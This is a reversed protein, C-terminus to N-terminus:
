RGPHRRLESRAARRAVRSERIRQLRKVLMPDAQLALPNDILADVLQYYRAPSLDFDRRIAEEKAGAHKWWTHEFALIQRDRESLADREDVQPTSADDDDIETHM